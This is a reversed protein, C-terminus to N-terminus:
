ADKKVKKKSEIGNGNLNFYKCVWSNFPKEAKKRTKPKQRKPRNKNKM